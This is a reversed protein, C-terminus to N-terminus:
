RVYIHHFEVWSYFLHFRTTEQSSSPITIMSFWYSFTLTLHWQDCTSYLSVFCLDLYDRRTLIQSNQTCMPICFAKRGWTKRSTTYIRIFPTALDYLLEIEIWPININALFSPGTFTAMVLSLGKRGAFEHFKNICPHSYFTNCQDFYTLPLPTSLIIVTM